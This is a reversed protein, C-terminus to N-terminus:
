RHGRQGAGGAAEYLYPSPTSAQIPSFARARMADRALPTGDSQRCPITASNGSPRLQPKTRNPNVLEMLLEEYHRRIKEGAQQSTWIDRGPGAACVVHRQSHGPGRPPSLREQASGVGLRHQWGRLGIHSLGLACCHDLMTGELAAPIGAFAAPEITSRPPACGLEQGCGALGEERDLTPQLRSSGTSNARAEQRTKWFPPASDPVVKMFSLNLFARRASEHRRPMSTFIAGLNWAAVADVAGGSHPFAERYDLFKRGTSSCACAPVDEKEVRSSAIAEAAADAAARRLPRQVQQNGSRSSNSSRGSQRHWAPVPLTGQPRRGTAESSGWHALDLAALRSRSWVTANSASTASRIPTAARWGRRGRLTMGDGCFELAAGALWRGPSPFKRCILHIRPSVAEM